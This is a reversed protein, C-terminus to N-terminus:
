EFFVGGRLGRSAAGFFSVWEVIKLNVGVFGKLNFKRRSSSEVGGGRGLYILIRGDGSARTIEFSAVINFLKYHAPSNARRQPLKKALAVRKKLSVPAPSVPLRAGLFKEHLARALPVLGGKKGGSCSKGQQATRPQITTFRCTGM